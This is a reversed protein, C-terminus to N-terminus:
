GYGIGQDKFDDPLTLPRNKNDSLASQSVGAETCRAVLM